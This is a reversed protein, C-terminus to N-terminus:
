ETVGVCGRAITEGKCQDHATQTHARVLRNQIKAPVDFGFRDHVGCHFEIGGKLTCFSVKGLLVGVEKKTVSLRTLLPSPELGGEVRQL